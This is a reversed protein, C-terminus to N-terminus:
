STPNPTWPVAAEILALAQERTGGRTVFDAADDGEERAEPWRVVRVSGGAETLLSAIAALHKEGPADFDPWMVLDYEALPVFADLTPATAAGTVTAVAPIALSWLADRAPEGELVVVVNGKAVTQVVDRAGYLPLNEVGYGNLGNRGDRSWWRR